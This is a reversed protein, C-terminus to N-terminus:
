SQLMKKELWFFWLNRILGVLIEHHRDLGQVSSVNERKLSSNGGFGIPNLSMMREFPLTSDFLWPRLVKHPQPDM